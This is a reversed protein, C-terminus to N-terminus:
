LLVFSSTCSFLADRASFLSASMNGVSMLVNIPPAQEFGFITLIVHESFKASSTSSEPLKYMMPLVNPSKEDVGESAPLALSPLLMLLPSSSLSQTCTNGLRM